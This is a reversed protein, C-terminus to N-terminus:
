AAADADTGSEDVSKDVAAEAALAACGEEIRRELEAMFAARGLGPPIPALFAVVIRGPRKVFRRRGWFAGSNLAVPVVPLGLRDYLAAVGPHYPRRHGPATRTGEPFIVIQAGAAAAAEADRVMRRLAGAGGKRDVAISGARRAFRGYLPIRLLERKLVYVPRPLIRHFLITEWASQHKAAVISAGEPLHERGRVEYDLGVVRRLLWDVAGAWRKIHPIVDHGPMLLIPALTVARVATLGFFLLNFLASRLLIM